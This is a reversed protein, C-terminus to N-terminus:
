STFSFNGLFQKLPFVLFSKCIELSELVGECSITTDSKLQVQKKTWKQRLFTVAYQFLFTNTSSCQIQKDLSKKQQFSVLIYNYDFCQFLQIIFKIPKLGYKITLHTKILYLSKKQLYFSFYLQLRIVLFLYIILKFPKLLQITNQQKIHTQSISLIGNNSKDTTNSEYLGCVQQMSILCQIYCTSKAVMIFPPLYCLVLFIKIFLLGFDHKYINNTM